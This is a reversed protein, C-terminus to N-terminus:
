FDIYCANLRVLSVFYKPQLNQSSSFVQSSGYGLNDDIEYLNKWECWHTQLRLM